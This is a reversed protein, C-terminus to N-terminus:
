DLPIHTTGSQGIEEILERALAALDTEGPEPKNGPLMFASTGHKCVLVLHGRDDKILAAVIRITPAPM